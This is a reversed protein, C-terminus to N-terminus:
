ESRLEEPLESIGLMSHAVGAMFSLVKEHDEFRTGFDQIVRRKVNKTIKRNKLFILFMKVTYSSGDLDFLVTDLNICNEVLLIRM